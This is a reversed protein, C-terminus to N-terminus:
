DAADGDTADPDGAESADTGAEAPDNPDSLGTNTHFCAGARCVGQECDADSVCGPPEDDGLVCSLPLAAGALLSLLVVVTRM